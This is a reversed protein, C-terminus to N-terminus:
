YTAFPNARGGGAEQPGITEFLQLNRTQESDMVAFNIKVEPISMTDEVPFNKFANNIEPLFTVLSLIALLVVLLGIILLFFVRQKKKPSQFIIAM